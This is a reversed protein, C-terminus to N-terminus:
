EGCALDGRDYAPYAYGFKCRKLNSMVHSRENAGLAPEELLRALAKCFGAYMRDQDRTMNTSHQIYAAVSLGECYAFDFTLAVRMFFHWDEAGDPYSDFPGVGEVLERRMVMSGLFVFNRRLLQRLLPGRELCRLGPEIERSPLIKLANGGFTDVFSVYGTDPSGMQADGFIFPIDEHTELHKLLATVGGALWKDDSDLFAVYRGCSAAFGTNRASALGGNDQRIYRVPFGMERVVEPTRDTSGDDVVVIEFDDLGSRLVSEITHSIMEARNYAPIIVSQKM